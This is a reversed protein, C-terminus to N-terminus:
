LRSVVSHERYCLKLVGGWGSLGLWGRRGSAWGPYWPMDGGVFERSELLSM